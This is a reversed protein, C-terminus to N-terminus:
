YKGALFQAHKIADTKMKYWSVTFTTPLTAGDHKVCYETIGNESYETVMVTGFMAKYSKIVKVM